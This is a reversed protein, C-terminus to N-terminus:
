FAMWFTRREGGKARHEFGYDNGLKKQSDVELGLMTLHECLENVKYNFSLYEKLWNVSIKM